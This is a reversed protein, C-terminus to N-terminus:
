FLNLISSSIDAFLVEVIRREKPGINTKRDKYYNYSIDRM